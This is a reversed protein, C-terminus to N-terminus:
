WREWKEYKHLWPSFLAVVKLNGGLEKRFSVRLPRINDKNSPDYLLEFQYHYELDDTRMSLIDTLTKNIWTSHKEKPSDIPYVFKRTYLGEVAEYFYKTPHVVTHAQWEIYLEWFAPPDMIKSTSELFQGGVLKYNKNKQPPRYGGAIKEDLEVQFLSFRDAMLLYEDTEYVMVEEDKFYAALKKMNFPRIMKHGNKIM